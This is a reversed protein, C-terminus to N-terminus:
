KRGVVLTHTNLLPEARVEAFGAARLWDQCDAPRYESGEPSVLRMYLSYLVRQLDRRDDDIMRDHVLLLGGPRLAEYARRVLAIRKDDAWGHLVQGYILIDAEPIPDTFLDGGVFEITDAMGIDRLHDVVFEKASPLEYNYGQLHAHARVLAAVLEGRGGGLDGVVKAASFDVRRALEAGIRVNINDMVDVFPIFRQKDTHSKAVFGGRSQTNVTGTRLAPGLQDWATRWSEGLLPLFEGLYTSSNEDLYSRAVPSDTYLEGIRELLGLAALVDLFDGTRHADLSLEQRIQQETASKGALMTFVGLEVACRVVEAQCFITSLRMITEPPEDPLQPAKARSTM